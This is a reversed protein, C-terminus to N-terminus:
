PAKNMKGSPKDEPLLSSAKRDSQRGFVLLRNAFNAAVFGKALIALNVLSEADKKGESLPDLRQQYALLVHCDQCFNVTTALM